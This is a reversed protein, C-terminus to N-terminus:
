SEAKLREEEGKGKDEWFIKEGDRAGHVVGMREVGASLVVEVDAGVEEFVGEEVFGGGEALLLAVGEPKAAEDGRALERHFLLLGVGEGLEAGFGGVEFFINKEGGELIAVLGKEVAEEGAV